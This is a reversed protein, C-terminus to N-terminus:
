GTPLDDGAGACWGTGAAANNSWLSQVAYRKGDNGTINNLGGPVTSSLALTSRYADTVEAGELAPFPGHYVATGSVDPTFFLAASQGTVEDETYGLIREAGLNWSVLINGPNLDGHILQDRSQSRVVHTLVRGLGALWHGGEDQGVVLALEDAEVGEQFLTGHGNGEMAAM